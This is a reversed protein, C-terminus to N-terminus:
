GLEELLKAKILWLKFFSRSAADCQLAIDCEELAKILNGLERLHQIYQM